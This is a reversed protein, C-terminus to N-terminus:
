LRVNRTTEYITDLPFYDASVVVDPTVLLNLPLHYTGEEVPTFPQFNFTPIPSAVSGVVGDERDDIPFPSSSTYNNILVVDKGKVGACGAHPLPFPVPLTSAAPAELPGAPTSFPTIPGLPLPSHTFFTPNLIEDDEAKALRQARLRAPSARRIPLLPPSPKSVIITATPRPNEDLFIGLGRLAKVRLARLEAKSPREVSAGASLESSSQTYHHVESPERFSSALVDTPLGLGLGISAKPAKKPRQIPEPFPGRNHPLVVEDGNFSSPCTSYSYAGPGASASSSTTTFSM